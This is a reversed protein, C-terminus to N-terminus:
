RCSWCSGGASSFPLAARPSEEERNKEKKKEEKERERMYGLDKGQDIFPFAPHGM